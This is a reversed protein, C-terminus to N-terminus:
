PCIGPTEVDEEWDEGDWPASSKYALLEEGHILAQGDELGELADLLAQNPCLGGNVYLNMDGPLFPYKEKLHEATLYGPEVRTGKGVKRCHDTHGVQAFGHAPYLDPFCPM